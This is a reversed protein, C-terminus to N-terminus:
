WAPAARPGPGGGDERCLRAVPRVVPGGIAPTATVAPKEGAAPGPRPCSDQPRMQVLAGTLAVLVPLGHPTKQPAHGQTDAILSTPSRGNQWRDSGTKENISDARDTKM